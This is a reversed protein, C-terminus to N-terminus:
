QRAVQPEAVALAMVDQLQGRVRDAGRAQYVAARAWVRCALTQYLLWRNLLIDMSRDPTRVQVAGLLEDWREGVARLVEAVDRTRYRLILERAQEPSAAEGLFFVVEARGRAPLEIM